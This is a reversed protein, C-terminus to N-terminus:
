YQVTLSVESEDGMVQCILTCYDHKVGVVFSEVGGAMKVVDVNIQLVVVCMGIVVISLVSGAMM